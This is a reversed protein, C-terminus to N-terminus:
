YHVHFDFSKTEVMNDKDTATITLKFDSNATVNVQYSSDFHYTPSSLDAKSINLVESLNQTLQVVVSKLNKDHSISGKLPLTIHNSYMAMNPSTITIQPKTAATTNKVTFDVSKSTTAGNHDTTTVTLTMHADAAVSPIFYLNTTFVKDHAHGNYVFAENNETNNKVKISYDHLDDESSINARIWLTDGELYMQSAVPSVFSVQPAKEGAESDKRCASFLATISILGLIVPKYIHKNIM